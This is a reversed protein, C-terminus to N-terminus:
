INLKYIKNRKAYRARACASARTGKKLAGATRNFYGIWIINYWGFLNISQAFVTLSKFYGQSNSSGSSAVMVARLRSALHGSISKCNYLRLPM